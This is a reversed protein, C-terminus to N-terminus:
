RLGDVGQIEGAKLGGVRANLRGRTAFVAIIVLEDPLPADPVHVSMADYHSRVYLADKHALPVDIITGAAGRKTTSSIWAKGGGVGERIVDGFVTTILAAAHDQEGNVGILAGKGYSEVAMGSLAENARVGMKRGLEASADVLASLDEQWKGAYPNRVVAAVAVKRLMSPAPRGGEHFVDEVISHIKRINM